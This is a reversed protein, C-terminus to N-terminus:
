QVVLVKTWVKMDERLHIIYVGAAYDTLDISLSQGSAGKVQHRKVLHGNLDYIELEFPPLVTESFKLWAKGSTPNPMIEFLANGNQEATRSFLFAVIDDTASCGNSDYITVSYTGPMNITIQDTTDGTSWEYSQVLVNSQAILTYLEGPIVNIDEGLDVIPNPNVTLYLTVLSDCGSTDTLLIDYQGTESFPSEGVAVSDGECIDLVLTDFSLPLFDLEILIISDCGIISAGELTEAGMPHNIDYVVGNVTISENACLRLELTSFSPPCLVGQCNSFESTNRMSDIALATAEMEGTLQMPFEELSWQGEDDAIVTGLYRRGQCALGTPCSMTDNVYVQVSDGPTATGAIYTVDATDIVPTPIDNNAGSEIVIAEENCYFSNRSLYVQQSNGRVEVAIESTNAFINAEDETGGICADVWPQGGNIAIGTGNPFVAQGSPDTGFYNGKVQINVFPNDHNVLDASVVGFTCGGIINGEGSSRNGGILLNNLIPSSISLTIASRILSQVEGAPTIGLYNSQIIHDNGGVYINGFIGSISNNLINNGKGPAGIKTHNAFQQLYLGARPWNQITLGYVEIWSGRINLAGFVPFGPLSEVMSGDVIVTGLANDSADILTSDQLLEVFPTKPYILFTDGPEPYFQITDPGPLRDACILSSRLTRPQRSDEASTVDTLRYQPQLDLFEHAGIDVQEGIVRQLGAVDTETDPNLLSNDGADRAPSCIMLRFDGSDPEVFLPDEGFIVEECQAHDLTSCDEGPVLCRRFIPNNNFSGVNTIFNESFICNEILPASCSLTAIGPLFNNYFTCNGFYANACDLYAGGGQNSDFICNILKPSVSSQTYYFGGGHDAMNKTFLCNIYNTQAPGPVGDAVAGGGSSGTISTYNSEFRCNYYNARVAGGSYQNRVAGGRNSFNETFTCNEFRHPQASQNFVAGGETLIGVEFLGNGEFTCEQILLPFATITNSEFIKIAGGQRAQNNSFHCDMFNPTVNINEDPYQVFIAGGDQACTNGEFTCNQFRPVSNNLFVAGGRFLANNGRFLCNHVRLESDSLSLGGGFQESGPSDGGNANGREIIFGDVLTGVTLNQGTLIHFSNDTHDDATGIDGSLITQNLNWNRETINNEIGAFGGFVHVENPLSFTANRDTTTSPRYIGAAVWVSDGPQAIALAEQLNNFAHTWSTGDNNGMAQINVYIIIGDLCAKSDTHNKRVFSYSLLFILVSFSFYTISRM